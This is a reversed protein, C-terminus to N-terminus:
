DHRARASSFLKLDDNLRLVRKARTCAVYLLHVEEALRRPDPHRQRLHAFSVVKGKDTTELFDDALVVQNWECGKAKHATSFCFRAQSEECAATRLGAIVTPVARGYREVIRLRTKLAIDDTTEAYDELAAFTEFSAIWPQRPRLRAWLRHIDEITEFDYGEIGGAFAIPEGPCKEVVKAALEFLGGNSRGIATIPARGSPQALRSPGGLGRLKPAQSDLWQLLRNAPEAIAAGFRFSGTLYLTRDAPAAMADIAGRWGYIAQFPDGTFVVRGPQHALVHLVAPNTDQAEDLLISDYDLVPTALSWLKLYGDHPMPLPSTSARMLRWLRHADALIREADM